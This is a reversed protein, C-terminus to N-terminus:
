QTFVMHPPRGLTPKAQLSLTPCTSQWDAMFPFPQSAAPVPLAALWPCYALCTALLLSYLRCTADGGPHGGMICVVALFTLLCPLPPRFALFPTPLDLQVLLRVAVPHIFVVTRPQANPRGNDSGRM